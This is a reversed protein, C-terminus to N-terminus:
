NGHVWDLIHKSIFAPLSRVRRSAQPRSLRNVRLSPLLQGTKHAASASLETSALCRCCMYAPSATPLM